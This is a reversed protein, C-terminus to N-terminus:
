KPLIINWELDRILNDLYFIKMKGSELLDQIEQMDLLVWEKKTEFVMKDAKSFTFGRKAPKKKYTTDMKRIDFKLTENSRNKIIGEVHWCENKIQSRTAYKISKKILNKEAFKKIM